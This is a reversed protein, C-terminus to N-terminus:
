EKGLLLDVAWCGRVHGRPERLHNLIADNTCDAEELADALVALRAPELTGAPLIRNDSVATALALVTPTQWAANLPVPRFPNGFIDLVFAVQAVHEADKPTGTLFEVAYGAANAADWPDYGRLNGAIMAAFAANFGGWQKEDGDASAKRAAADADEKAALASEIAAKRERRNAMGDAFREAIEVAMQSRHDAMLFWIRRCCAVAFLRKKRDSAKECVFEVMGKPDTRALWDQERM